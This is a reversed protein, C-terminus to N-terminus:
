VQKEYGLSIQHVEPVVRDPNDIYTLGTNRGMSGPPYLANIVARNIVPGNVLLPDTPFLGRSPGPDASSQPFQATFSSSYVGQSVFPTTTQLTVKDYFIGYGGRVLSKASGGPNWTIGLRPAINNKDVASSGKAFLPNFSNDIPTMELDYRVGLNMTLNQHRWQDQAFMVGVHTPMTIDSPAPVRIFLREPYTSPDSANFVKDTSFAFRGNMDTQDPLNITSYIYQGGFKFNHDGAWGPKFQTFTESLEYANDIRFLAGNNPGDFFTLMSLTPAVDVMDIGTHVEPATFGNKEHTYGFRLQNFKTNGFVTNYNGGASRDIDFEQDRGAPTEKRAVRDYTPSYEVLYRGSWTNSANLQNDFRILHNWLRMTQ